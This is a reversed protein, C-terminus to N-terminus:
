AAIKSRSRFRALVHAVLNPALAQAIAALRCDAPSPRRSRPRARALRPHPAAVRQPDVVLRRLPRPLATRQPFGETEVFGPKVTHVRIGRPALEAAVTRSFALAAHKSAAYPGEAGAVEGAISVVNVVDAPPELAPLFARCAGSAASTTRACRRNSGTRTTRRRLGDTGPHGRQERAPRNASTARQDRAAAREVAARDGVDCVEFEGGLEDALARLRDERRALLVCHWNSATLTRAVAEGIGSSAGTVVAIRRAPTM